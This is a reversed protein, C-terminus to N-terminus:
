AFFMILVGVNFCFISVCFSFLLFVCQLWFFFLRQSRSYVRREQAQKPADLTPIATLFFTAGSKMTAINEAKKSAILVTCTTWYPAALISHRQGEQGGVRGGRGNEQPLARHREDRQCWRRLTSTKEWKTAGDTKDLLAPHFFFWCSLLLLFIESLFWRNNRKLHELWINWIRRSRFGPSNEDREPRLCLVVDGRGHCWQKFLTARQPM